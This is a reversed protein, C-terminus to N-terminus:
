RDRVKVTFGFDYVEGNTLTVRNVVRYNRGGTGGSLRVVTGDASSTSADVTIGTPPLFVSGTITVGAPLDPRWDVPFDRVEDPDKYVLDARGAVILLQGM